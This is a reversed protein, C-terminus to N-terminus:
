RKRLISPPRAPVLAPRAAPLMTAPTTVGVTYSKPSHAVGHCSLYCQGSGAGTVQYELRQTVPDRQVATIDFNILHAHNTPTGQASSIGHGDHCVSCPTRQDVIHKSHQPFSNNGLISSRQHCRYCLAYADASETTGDLTQYPAVLLPRISSGHPGGAGAVNVIGATAGSDTAHCSTCYIVSATTLGPVLSPVVPNKGPGEVPHFSVASQAFELQTNTQAIQRSITQTPTANTQGHCKFCVEYEFQARPVNAGAANVGSIAGLRPSVAPAAAATATGMTHPEHCDGCDVNNPAHEKLNVPSHTDHRSLLNLAQAVNPGQQTGTQGGHCTVCTDTVTQGVLLYPGSPATHQQHCGACDSHAAVTTQGQNHCSTCLQSRSNDMVLFKGFQDNHADHCSTCQMEGSHDLKVQQPLNTPPRLKTNRAALITDYRFSVPHDDSLDTGLNSKAGPPLTTMGGVMQIAQSRSLVSGLAITGDHCSLCLKSSGTPQGPRAQLSNSSYVTYANMPVNRNWLPTIPASNHPTHCFICIQQEESARISGPGSASLNHPSNVISTQQQAFTARAPLMLGLLFLPALRRM